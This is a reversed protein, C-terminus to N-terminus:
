HGNVAKAEVPFASLGMLDAIKLAIQTEDQVGAFREAGPGFAFVPVASPTHDGASWSVSLNKGDLGGKTVVLGGTEHDATVVVLTRGDKAAFAAAAQVAMDFWLTQRLVGVADNKHCRKDILSGEVMMFFGDPDKDLRDIAATAMTALPPEPPEGQMHGDAFLGLLKAGTSSALADASFVADYGKAKLEAVLDRHDGRSGPLFRAKGGGLIVDAGSAAIDLAIADEDGRSQSWAAFCAPTADTVSSAVVLGTAMGKAQAARLLSVMRRGDPAIAVTRNNTKVGCALATGAAASDTVLNDASFTWSLGLVPFREMCLRGAPGLAALHALAVQSLGMGDGIMLIVNRPKDLKSRPYELGPAPAQYFSIDVKGLEVAPSPSSVLLVVALLLPSMLRRM